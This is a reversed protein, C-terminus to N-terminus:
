EIEMYTAEYIYEETIEDYKVYTHVILPNNNEDVEEVESHEERTLSHDMNYYKTGVAITGEYEYVIKQLYSEGDEAKPYDDTYQVTTTPYKKGDSVFGEETHTVFGDLSSTVEYRDDIYSYEDISGLPNKEGDAAFRKLIRGEEDLENEYYFENVQGDFINKRYVENGYEDYDIKAEYTSISGYEYTTKMSVTNGKEDYEYETQNYLTKEGDETISYTKLTKVRYKKAEVTTDTSEAVAEEAVGEQTETAKEESADKEETSETKDAETTQVAEDTTAASTNGSGGCGTLLLFVMSTALMMSVMRKKM